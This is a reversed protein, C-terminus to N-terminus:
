YIGNLVGSLVICSFLYKFGQLSM